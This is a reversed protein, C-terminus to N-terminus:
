RTSATGNSNLIELEYRSELPLSKVAQNNEGVLAPWYIGVLNANDFAAISVRNGQNGGLIVLKGEKTKGVIFGVHYGGSLKFVAIAGYAPRSLKRMRSEDAWEKARYWEKVVYRGATGLCYGVFLGCWAEEDNKWWSKAEGNFSGMKGLWNLITPNHATKSTNEKLNLFSMAIIIWHLAKSM